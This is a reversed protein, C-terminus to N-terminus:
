IEEFLILALSLLYGCIIGPQPRPSSSPSILHLIAFSVSHSPLYLIYEKLVLHDFHPLHHSL